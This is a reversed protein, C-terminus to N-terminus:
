GQSHLKMLTDIQEESLDMIDQTSLSGVKDMISTQGAKANAQNGLASPKDLVKQFRSDMKEKPTPLADVDGTPTADAVSNLMRRFHAETDEATVIDMLNLGEFEKAFENTLHTDFVHTLAESSSLDRTVGNAKTFDSVQDEVWKRAARYRGSAPGFRENEGIIGEMVKDANSSATVNANTQQLKTELENIRQEYPSVLNNVHTPDIWGNGDDDYTVPIGQARAGAAEAESVSAIGQQQRQSLITGVAGELQNLRDSSDQRKRTEAQKAKLLGANASTLEEVQSKLANVEEVNPAEVEGAEAAIEDDLLDALLDNNEDSM